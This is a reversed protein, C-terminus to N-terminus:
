FTDFPKRPTHMSIIKGLEHGEDVIVRLWRIKHFKSNVRVLTIPDLNSKECSKSTNTKSFESAAREFTTLVIMYQALSEISIDIKNSLVTKPLPAVVDVIDGLGDIWVVGRGDFTTSLYDMNLMRTIQEFWHELLSLPVIVLTSASPRYASEERARLGEKSHLFSRRGPDLGQKVGRMALRFEECSKDLLYVNNSLTQRLKSTVDREFSELTPYKNLIGITITGDDELLEAKRANRAFVFNRIRLLIEHDQNNILVSMPRSLLTRFPYDDVKSNGYGEWIENIKETDWFLKPGQM